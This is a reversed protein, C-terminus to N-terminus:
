TKIKDKYKNFDQALMPEFYTEVDIDSINEFHGLEKKKKLIYM